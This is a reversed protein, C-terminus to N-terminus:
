GSSDDSETGSLKQRLLVGVTTPDASVAGAPQGAGARTLPLQTGSLGGGGIQQAASLLRSALEDVSIGSRSAAALDGLQRSASQPQAPLGTVVQGLVAAFRNLAAQPDEGDLRASVYATAQAGTLRQGKGAAVLVNGARIEQDVDVVVGGNGDVLAGLGGPTLLWSADIRVNFTRALAQAPGDVGAGITGALTTRAGNGDDVLLSPPVLVAATYGPGSGLLLSASLGNGDALGVLLIQQRSLASSAPSQSGGHLPGLVLWTGAAGVVGVVALLVAVYLLLGRDVRPRGDVSGARPRHRTPRGGTRYALPPYSGLDLDDVETGASRTRGRGPAAHLRDAQLRESAIPGTPVLGTRPGDSVATGPRIGGANIGGTGVGGGGLDGTVMGGASPYGQGVLVDDERQGESRM